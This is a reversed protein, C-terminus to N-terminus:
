PRSTNAIKRRRTRRVLRAIALRCAAGPTSRGSSRSPRIPRRRLATSRRHFPHEVLKRKWRKRIGTIQQKRNARAKRHHKEGGSARALRPGPEHQVPQDDCAREELNTPTRAALHRRPLRRLRNRTLGESVVGHGIDRDEGHRYQHEGPGAGPPARRQRHQGGSNDQHRERVAREGVEGSMVPYKLPWKMSIPQAAANRVNPM